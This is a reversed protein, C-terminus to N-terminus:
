RAAPLGPARFEILRHSNDCYPKNESAGCRCLALRTEERGAGAGGPGQVVFQGRLFLPGNPRVEVTTPKDPEEPPVAPGAYRLARHSLSPDDGRDGRATRGGPRDM